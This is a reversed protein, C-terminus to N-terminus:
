PQIPRIEVRVAGGKVPKDFAYSCKFKHDDIDLADAIGDRYAKFSGIANDDDRRRRDPPCFTIDLSAGLWNPRTTGFVARTLAFGVERAVKKAAARAGWHKGRANPSLKADPWPLIVVRPMSLGSFMGRKLAAQFAQEQDM